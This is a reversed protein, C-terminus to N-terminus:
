PDPTSRVSEQPAGIPVRYRDTKIGIWWISVGLYGRQAQAEPTLPRLLAPFSEQVKNLGILLVQPM